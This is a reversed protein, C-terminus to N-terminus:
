GLLGGVIAAAGGIIVIGAGVWPIGIAGQAAMESRNRRGLAMQVGCVMLGVVCAIIGVWKTWGVIENGFTELGPPAQAPGNPVNEALFTAAHHATEIIM